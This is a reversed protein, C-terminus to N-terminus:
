LHQNSIVQQMKATWKERITPQQLSKQLFPQFEDRTVPAGGWQLFHSSVQQCDIFDINLMKILQVLYYFAIKSMDSKFHFMSEGVFMNGLCVGYLGGALENQQYVEVSHAYALRHLRTYAAIIESTIWGGNRKMEQCATVVAKFDTDARVEYDNKRVRQLWSKSFKVKDPFMLLRSPFTWWALMSHGDEYVYPMPFVGQSYATLIRQVSLDGGIAILGDPEIEMKTIDPFVSSPTGEIDYIM